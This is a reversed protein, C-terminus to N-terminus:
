GDEVESKEEGQFIGPWVKGDGSVLPEVVCKEQETKLCLKRNPLTVSGIRFHRSKMERNNFDSRGQLFNRVRGIQFHGPSKSEESLCAKKYDVMDKNEYSATM